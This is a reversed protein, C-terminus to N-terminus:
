LKEYSLQRDTKYAMIFASCKARNPKYPWALPAVPTAEALIKQTPGEAMDPLSLGPLELIFVAVTLTPGILFPLLAETM